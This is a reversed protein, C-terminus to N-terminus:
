MNRETSSRITEFYQILRNVLNEAISDLWDEPKFETTSLGLHVPKLDGKNFEQKLFQIIDRKLNQKHNIIFIECLKQKIPSKNQKLQLRLDEDLTLTKQLLRDEFHM